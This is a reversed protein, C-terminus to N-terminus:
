KGLDRLIEKKMNERDAAAAAQERAAAARQKMRDITDRKSQEAKEVATMDNEQFNQFKKM